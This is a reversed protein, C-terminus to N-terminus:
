LSLAPALYVVKSIHILVIIWASAPQTYPGADQIYFISSPAGLIGWIALGLLGVIITGRCRKTLHLSERLWILAIIGAVVWLIDYFMQIMYNGPIYWDPYFHNIMINYIVEWMGIPIWIVGCALILAQKENLRTRARTLTFLFVAFVFGLTKCSSVEGPLSFTNGIIAVGMGVLCIATYPIKPLKPVAILYVVVTIPIIYMLASIAGASSPPQTTPAVIYYVLYALCAWTIKSEM